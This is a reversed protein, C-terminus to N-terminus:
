VRSRVMIYIYVLLLMVVSILVSIVVSIVVSKRMKKQMEKLKKKVDELEEQQAIYNQNVRIGLVNLDLNVQQAVYEAYVSVPSDSPVGNVFEKYLKSVNSKFPSSAM